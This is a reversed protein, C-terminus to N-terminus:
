INIEESGTSDRDLMKFIAYVLTLFQRFSDLAYPNEILFVTSAAANPLSLQANHIIPRLDANLIRPFNPKGNAIVEEIARRIHTPMPEALNQDIDEEFGQCCRM